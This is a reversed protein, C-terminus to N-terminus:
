AENRPHPTAREAIQLLRDVNMTAWLSIALAGTSADKGEAFDLLKSWRAAADRVFAQDAKSM